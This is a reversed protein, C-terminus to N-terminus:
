APWCRSLIALLVAWTLGCLWLLRLQDRQSRSPDSEQEPRDPARPGDGSFAQVTM